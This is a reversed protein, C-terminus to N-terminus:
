IIQGPDYFQNLCSMLSSDLDEWERNLAQKSFIQQLFLIILAPYIGIQSFPPPTPVWPM